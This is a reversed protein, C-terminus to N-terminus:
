RRFMPLPRLPHRLFHRFARKILFMHFGLFPYADRMATLAPRSIGFTKLQMSVDVLDGQRFYEVALWHEDKFRSVKHHWLIMAEVEGALGGMGQAEMYARCERVSPELYDFTGDTWIGIDHFAAALAYRIERVPEADLQRCALYVRQAHNRYRSYDKGLQARYRDLIDDILPHPHM